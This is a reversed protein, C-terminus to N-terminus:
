LIPFLSKGVVTDIFLQNLSDWEKTAPVGSFKEQDLRKIEETIFGSLAPLRPGYGLESGARKDRLLETADRLVDMPLLDGDLLEQFDVPPPMGFTEISRIALLPRLVYLYKKRWVKGDGQLYDRYNGKAMHFYHYCTATPNYYMPFLAMLNASWSDRDWYVRTSMLWELLPPNSKKFLRLAKRLDWGSIDLVPGVREIVDRGENLSLYKRWDHAYIFRIDYDSDQSAIGWCRSGAECAYLITVGYDEEIRELEDRILKDM